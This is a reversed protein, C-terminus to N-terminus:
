KENILDKLFSDSSIKDITSSMFKIDLYSENSLDQIKIPIAGCEQAELAYNHNSDLVLYYTHSRLLEARLKEDILGLNQFHPLSPGNFLKIPLNTAPYLSDTLQKPISDLGDLFCVIGKSRVINTDNFFLNTNILNFPIQIDHDLSYGIYKVKGTIHNQLQVRLGEADLIYIQIDGDIDNIFKVIHDSLQSSTLFIQKPRYKFYMEYINTNTINDLITTDPLNGYILNQIFKHSSPQTLIYKM